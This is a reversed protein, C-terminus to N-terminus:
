RAPAPAPASACRQARPPASATAWRWALAAPALVRHRPVLGAKAVEVAPTAPEPAGSGRWAAARAWRLERQVARGDEHLTLVYPRSQDVRLASAPVALAQQRELDVTGRAFLGQRLGAHPAVALALYVLVTRTGAQTSPSIRAVRATVPEALGDVQLSAAQGPRLTCCTKRRPPPKSSSARCTSSRSSAGDLAVREGPQALRQAV